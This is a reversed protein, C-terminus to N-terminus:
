DDDPGTTPLPQALFYGPPLPAPIPNFGRPSSLSFFEHLDSGRQAAQYDAYQTAKTNAPGIFGLGFNREVFYLISGFDDIRNSVTHPATYASVVLLPVRFGGVYGAGWAGPPAVLAPRVHDYWGGWDDWTIVIATDNWYSEGTGPCAAQQGIANVIGAVWAPGTGDTLRAHDSAAGTPIVWSVASLHCTQIDSLVQAPNNPVDHALWDAGACVKKGNITTAGCIAAIANPANWIGDPNPAYYTWGIPDLLNAPTPRNFCPYIGPLFERGQPDIVAVQSTSPAACGAQARTGTVGSGTINEAAFDQSGATPSSTGGFLFQHAPFSPGQNTQFMRNAFGYNTAIDFYPQPSGTGSGTNPVYGFQPHAPLVCGASPSVKVKDAGQTYAAEFDSHRHGLDYCSALPVPGLPVQKGKSDIGVSALDVGPEFTPNSGFVDDPTRNEQVVIVIHRFAPAALVPATAVVMAGCLLAGRGAARSIGYGM